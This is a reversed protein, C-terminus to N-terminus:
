FITPRSSITAHKILPGEKPMQKIQQLSIGVAFNVRFSSHLRTLFRSKKMLHSRLFILHQSVPVASPVPKFKLKTGAKDPLSWIKSHFCLSTLDPATLIWTGCNWMAESCASLIQLVASSGLKALVMETLFQVSVIGLPEGEWSSTPWFVVTRQYLQQLVDSPGMIHSFIDLTHRKRFISCVPIFLLTKQPPKKWVSTRLSMSM